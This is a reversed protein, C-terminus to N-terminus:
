RRSSAARVKRAADKNVVTHGSSEDKRTEEGINEPPVRLLALAEEESQEFAQQDTTTTFEVMIGNPDVMYISRCWGHDTEMLLEVDNRECRQKMAALEDLDDVNFAVHNVWVPLGLGTSIDTRYDEKEGVDGFEFFGLTEGGGMDFFFHRMWGKGVRHNECHVLKMGLRRSYFDHTAEVDRTGFAVHHLRSPGPM